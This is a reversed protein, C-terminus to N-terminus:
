GKGRRVLFEALHLFDIDPIYITDGSPLVMQIFSEGNLKSFNAFQIEVKERKEYPQDKKLLEIKTTIKM